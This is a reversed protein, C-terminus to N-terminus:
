IVNLSDSWFKFVDMTGQASSGDLNPEITETNPSCPATIVPHLSEGQNPGTERVTDLKTRLVLHFM